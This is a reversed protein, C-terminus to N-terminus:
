VKECIVNKGAELCQLIYSEHFATPTAIICAKVEDDKALVDLQDPMLFTVDHCSWNQRVTDWKSKDSEVIYKLTVHRINRINNFHLSGARGTGFLAVSIHPLSTKDPNLSKM